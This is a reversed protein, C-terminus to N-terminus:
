RSRLRMAIRAVAYGICFASFAVIAAEFWTLSDELFFANMATLRSGPSRGRDLGSRRGEYGM